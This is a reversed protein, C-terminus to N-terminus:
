CSTVLIISVGENIVIFYYAYNSQRFRLGYYLYLSSKDESYM